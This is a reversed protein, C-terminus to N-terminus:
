KVDAALWDDARRMIRVLTHHPRLNIVEHHAWEEDLASIIWCVLPVALADCRISISFFMFKIFPNERGKKNHFSYFVFGKQPFQPVEQFHALDPPERRNNQHEHKNANENHHTM